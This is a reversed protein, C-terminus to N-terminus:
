ELAVGDDFAAPAPEEISKFGGKNEDGSAGIRVGRFGWGLLEAGM